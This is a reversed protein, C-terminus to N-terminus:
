WVWQDLVRRNFDRISYVESQHNRQQQFLKQLSFKIYHSDLDKELYLKSQIYKLFNYYFLSTHIQIGALDKMLETEFEEKGKNDLYGLIERMFDKSLPTWNFIAAVELPNSWKETTLRLESQEPVRRTTIDFLHTGMSSM